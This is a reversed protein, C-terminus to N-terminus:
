NSQFKRKHKDVELDKSCSVQTEGVSLCILQTDTQRVALDFSLWSFGAAPREAKGKIWGRKLIKV